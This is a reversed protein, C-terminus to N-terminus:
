CRSGHIQTIDCCRSITCVLGVGHKLDYNVAFALEPYQSTQAEVYTHYVDSTRKGNAKVQVFQALNDYKFTLDTAYSDPEHSVFGDLEYKRSSTTLCLKTFTYKFQKAEKNRDM